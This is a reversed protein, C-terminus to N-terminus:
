YKEWHIKTMNADALEYGKPHSDIAGVSLIAELKYENPFNLIGRLYDETTKGDSADRLRGQIWCSGFGLADATLHMNSMVISCDEVWVDSLQANGIVVIAAAADKLMKAAGQRCHSIKDLTEKDTVVILEWPRLGRSSASLLGAQLIKTLDEKSISEDTYKRISRRNKIIDLISM